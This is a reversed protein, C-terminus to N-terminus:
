RRASASQSAQQLRAVEDDRPEAREELPDVPAAAEDEERPRRECQHRCDGDAPGGDPDVEDGTAVARREDDRLLDPEAADDEQEPPEDDDGHVLDRM